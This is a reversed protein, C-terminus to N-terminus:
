AETPLYEKVKLRAAEITMTGNEVAKALAIIPNL